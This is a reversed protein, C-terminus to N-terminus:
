EGRQSRRPRGSPAPQARSSFAKAHARDRRRGGQQQIGGQAFGFPEPVAKGVGGDQHAAGDAPGVRAEVAAFVLPQFAGSVM